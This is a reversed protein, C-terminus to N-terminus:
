TAARHRHLAMLYGDCLTRSKVDGGCASLLDQGSMLSAHSAIPAILSLALAATLIKANM